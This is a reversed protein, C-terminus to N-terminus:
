HDLFGGPLVMDKIISLPIVVKQTGAAYPAVQYPDFLIQLGDLQLTWNKYNEEKALVGDEFFADALTKKLDTGCYNSIAPLYNAGPRFLDALKLMQKKSLDYNFTVSYTNPHAAGAYYISVAYLVSIVKVSVLPTTFHVEMDSGASQVDLARPVNQKFGSVTKNIFIVMAQNFPGVLAADGQMVAYEGQIAFPPQSSKEQISKSGLVPMIVAPTPTDPVPTASPQTTASPQPTITATQTATPKLWPAAAAPLSLTCALSIMGAVIFLAWFKFRRKM